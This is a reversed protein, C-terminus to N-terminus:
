GGTHVAWWNLFNIYEEKEAKLARGDMKDSKFHYNEYYDIAAPTTYTRVVGKGVHQAETMIDAMIAMGTSTGEKIKGGISGLTEIITEGKEVYYSAAGAVKGDVSYKIVGKYKGGKAILELSRKTYGLHQGRKKEPVDQSELIKLAEQAQKKACKPSNVKKSM